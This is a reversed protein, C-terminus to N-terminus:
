ALACPNQRALSLTSGQNVSISSSSRAVTTGESAPGLRGWSRTASVPALAAKSAARGASIPAPPSGALRTGSAPM